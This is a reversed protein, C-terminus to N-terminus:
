LFQLINIQGQIEPEEMVQPQYGEVHNKPCSYASSDALLIVIDKEYVARIKGVYGRITRVDMGVRLINM